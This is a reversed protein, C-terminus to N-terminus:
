HAGLIDVVFVLTDDGKIGGQPSGKKGYGEKPPIVLLVRSGVKRGTLGKDWGPVVKGVGIPFMAPQAAAGPQRSEWSTDFTKGNRWLKGQYHAVIHQGKAVVPGTGEVLTEAKLEKPPDGDPIKVDPAKGVDKATVKPLDDDDLERSQGAAAAGPKYSGLVDFVFVLTDTANVGMEPNGQAGFGDKPPITVLVRSGVRKGTLGKDIGPILQGITLSEPQGSDYSNFLSKNTTGRWTYGVYNVVVMDGKAAPAGKGEILYRSTLTAGPKVKPLTIKPKKGFAGSVEIETSPQLALYIATSGGVVAATLAVTITTMMVTRRRRRRRAAESLKKKPSAARAGRRPSLGHPTFEASGVIDQARPLQAKAAKAPEESDDEADDESDEPDGPDADAPDDENSIVDSSSVDDSIETEAVEEVEAPEAVEDARTEDSTVSESRGEKDSM